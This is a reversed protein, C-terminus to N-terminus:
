IPNINKLNDLEEQSLADTTGISPAKIHKVTEFTPNTKLIECPWADNEDDEEKNPPNNAYEFM